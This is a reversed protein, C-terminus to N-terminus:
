LKIRLFNQLHKNFVRKCTSIIVINILTCFDKLVYLLNVFVLLLLFLQQQQQLLMLMLLLHLLHLLLLCFITCLFVFTASLEKLTLFVHSLVVYKGALKSQKGAQRGAQRGVQKIRLVMAAHQLLCANTICFEDDFHLHM